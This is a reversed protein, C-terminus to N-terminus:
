SEAVLSYRFLLEYKSASTGGTAANFAAVNGVPYMRGGVRYLAITPLSGDTAIWQWSIMRTDTNVIWIDSEYKSSGSQVPRSGPPTPQVLSLSGYNNELEVINTPNSDKLFGLTPPSLGELNIRVRSETTAGASLTFNVSSAQAEQGIAPGSSYYLWGVSAQTDKRLVEIKAQRQIPLPAATETPVATTSESTSPETTSTAIDTTSTQSAPDDTTSVEISSSADTTSSITRGTSSSESSVSAPSTETSTSYVTSTSTQTVTVSATLTVAPATATATHKSASLPVKICVCASSVSQAPYTTPLWDPYAVSRKAARRPVPAISTIQAVSTESVTGGNEITIKNIYTTETVTTSITPTVTAIATSVPLGFFASCWPLADDATRFLVVLPDNAPCPPHCLGSAVSVFVSAQLLLKGTKTAFGM